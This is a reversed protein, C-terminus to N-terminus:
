CFATGNRIGEKLSFVCGVERVYKEYVTTEEM